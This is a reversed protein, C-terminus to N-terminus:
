LAFGRRPTRPAGGAYRRRRRVRPAAARAGGGEGRSHSAQTRCRLLCWRLLRRATWPPPRRQSAWARAAISEAASATAALAAPPARGGDKSRGSPRRIDDDAKTSTEPFEAGGVDGLLVACATEPTNFRVPSGGGGAARSSPAASPAPAPPPARRSSRLRSPEDGISPSVDSCGRLPPEAADALMPCMRRRLITGTSSTSGVAPSHPASASRTAASPESSRWSRGGRVRAGRRRRRRWRRAPATPPAPLRAPRRRLRWPPPPPWIAAPPSPHAPLWPSPPARWPRRRHQRPPPLVSASRLRRSPHRRRRKACPSMPSPLVGRGFLAPRARRAPGDDRM